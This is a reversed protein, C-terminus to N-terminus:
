YATEDLTVGQKTGWNPMTDLFHSLFIQSLFNALEFSSSFLCLVAVALALCSGVFTFGNRSVM